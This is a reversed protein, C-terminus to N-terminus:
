DVTYALLYMAFQSGSAAFRTSSFNFSYHEDIMTPTVTIESPSVPTIGGGSAAVSFAFDFFVVHGLSCGTGGLAIYSSLTSAVCDPPLPSITDASAPQAICALAGVIVALSGKRM